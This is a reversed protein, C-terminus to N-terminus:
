HAVHVARCKLCEMARTTKFRAKARHGCELIVSWLQGSKLQRFVCMVKKLEPESM